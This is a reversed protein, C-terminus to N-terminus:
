IHVQKGQTKFLNGTNTIRCGALRHYFTLKTKFHQSCTAQLVWYRFRVNILNIAIYTFTHTFCEASNMEHKQIAMHSGNPLVTTLIGRHEQCHLRRGYYERAVTHRRVPVHREPIRTTERRYNSHSALAEIGM